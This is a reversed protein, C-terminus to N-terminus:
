YILSFSSFFFVFFFIGGFSLADASKGEPMDFIWAFMGEYGRQCISLGRSVHSVSYSRISFSSIFDTRGPLADIQLRLGTIGKTIGM